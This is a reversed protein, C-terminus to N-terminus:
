GGAWSRAPATAKPLESPSCLRQPTVELCAQNSVLPSAQCLWLCSLPPTPSLFVDLWGKEPFGKSCGESPRIIATTGVSCFSWSHWLSIRNGAAHCQDLAGTGVALLGPCPCLALDLLRPQLLCVRGAVPEKISIHFAGVFEEGGAACHCFERLQPWRSGAKGHCQSDCHAGLM